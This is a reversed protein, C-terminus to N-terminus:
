YRIDLDQDAIVHDGDSLVMTWTASKPHTFRADIVLRSDCDQLSSWKTSWRVTKAPSPRGNFEWSVDIDSQFGPPIAVSLYLLVNEGGVIPQSLAVEPGPVLTDFNVSETRALGILAPKKLTKCADKVADGERDFLEALSLQKEGSEAAEAMCNHGLVCALAAVTVLKTLDLIAQPGRRRRRPEETARRIERNPKMKLSPFETPDEGPALYYEAGVPNPPCPM